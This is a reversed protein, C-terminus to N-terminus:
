IFEQAEAESQIRLPTRIRRIAVLGAAGLLSAFPVIFLAVRYDHDSYARIGNETGGTWSQDLLLGISGHFFSGGLMNICNLLATTIGLLSSPTLQSGIAFILVQYCGLIGVLLMLIMLVTPQYSKIMM